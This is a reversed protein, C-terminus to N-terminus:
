VVQLSPVAKNKKPDNVMVKQLTFKKGACKKALEDFDVDDLKDDEGILGVKQALLSLNTVNVAWSEAEYVPKTFDLIAMSNFQKPPERLEKCVVTVQSISAPLDSGHLMPPGGKGRERKMDGISKGMESGGKAGKARPQTHEKKVHKELLEFYPYGRGCHDCIYDGFDSM